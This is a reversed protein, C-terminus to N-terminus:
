GAQVRHCFAEVSAIQEAFARRQNVQAELEGARRELQRQRQERERRRRQYEALPIVASLDAETLRELQATLSAHGRQLHERQAQLEQPLWHGARARARELAQAIHEPHTLLACLDRWVLDDLQQAPIFRAACREAPRSQM